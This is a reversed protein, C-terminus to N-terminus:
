RVCKGWCSGETVPGGVGTSSVGASGTVVPRSSQSQAIHAGGVLLIGLAGAAISTALRSKM